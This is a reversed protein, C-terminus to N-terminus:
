PFETDSFCLVAPRDSIALYHIDCGMLLEGTQRWHRIFNNSNIAEMLVYSVAIFYAAPKLFAFGSFPAFAPLTFILVVVFPALLYHSWLILHSLKIDYAVDKNHLLAYTGRDLIFRTVNFAYRTETAALSEALLMPRGWEFAFWDIQTSPYLPEVNQLALYSASDEGPTRQAVISAEPM